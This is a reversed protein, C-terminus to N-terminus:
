GELIQIEPAPVCFSSFRSSLRAQSVVPFPLIWLLCDKWHICCFPLTYIDVSWGSSSQHELCWQATSWLSEVGVFFTTSTYLLSDTSCKFARRHKSVDVLKSKLYLNCLSFFSWSFLTFHGFDFDMLVQRLSVKGLSFFSYHIRIQSM